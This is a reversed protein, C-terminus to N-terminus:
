EELLENVLRRAKPIDGPECLYDQLETLMRRRNKYKKSVGLLAEFEKLKKCSRNIKDHVSQRSCNLEAAIEGLSWDAQFYREIVFQQKGTLLSGYFDFLRNIELTRELM